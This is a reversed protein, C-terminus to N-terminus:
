RAAFFVVAVVRLFVLAMVPCIVVAFSGVWARARFLLFCFHGRWPSDTRRRVLGVIKACDPVAPLIALDPHLRLDFATARERRLRLHPLFHSATQLASKRM